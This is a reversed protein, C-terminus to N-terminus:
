GGGDGAAEGLTNGRGNERGRGGAAGPGGCPVQATLDLRPRKRRHGSGVSRDIAEIDVVCEFEGRKRLGRTNVILARQRAQLNGGKSKKRLPHQGEPKRKGVRINDGPDSGERGLGRRLQALWRPESEGGMGEEYVM